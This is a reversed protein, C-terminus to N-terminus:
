SGEGRDQATKAGFAALREVPTTFLLGRGPRDLGEATAMAEFVAVEDARRVLIFVIEREVDVGLALIGLRERYGVGTGYSVTGGQAGAAVAAEVVGDGLGRQVVATILVVDDLYVIGDSTM